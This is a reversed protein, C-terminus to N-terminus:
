RNYFIQETVVGLGSENVLQVRYTYFTNAKLDKMLIMNRTHYGTQWEEDMVWTCVGPSVPSPISQGECYFMEFYTPQDTIVSVAEDHKNATHVIRERLITPATTPAAAAISVPVLIMIAVLLSILLRKM